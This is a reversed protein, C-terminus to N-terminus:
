EIVKDKKLVEYIYEGAAKHGDKNWHFDIPFYYAHYPDKNKFLTQKFSYFNIQNKQCFSSLSDEPTMRGSKKFELISEHSPIYFTYFKAGSRNVEESLAKLYTYTSYYPNKVLDKTVPKIKPTAM